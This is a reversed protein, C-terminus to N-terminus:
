SSRAVKSLLKKDLQAETCLDQDFGPETKCPKGGIDLMKYVTFDLELNFKKSSPVM